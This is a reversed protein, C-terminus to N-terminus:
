PLLCQLVPFTITVAFGAKWATTTPISSLGAQPNGVSYGPMLVQRQTFHASPTVFIARHFFSVANGVFLDGTTGSSSTSVGAGGAVHLGISHEPHVYSYNMQGVYLLTLLANNSYGIVQTTTPPNATYDTKPEFAYTSNRVTSIGLGSSITLSPLCANTFSFFPSSAPAPTTQSYDTYPLSVTQSETKGFWQVHCTLALTMDWPDTTNKIYNARADWDSGTSVSANYSAFTTPSILGQFQAVVGSAATVMASYAAKRATADAKKDDIFDKYDSTTEFKALDNVLKLAATIQDQVEQVTGDDWSAVKIDICANLGAALDKEQEVSLLVDSYGNALNQFCAVKKQANIQNKSLAVNLSAYCQEIATVRTQLGDESLTNAAPPCIPAVPPAKVPM